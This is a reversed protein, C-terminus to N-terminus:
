GASTIDKTRWGVAASSRTEIRSRSIHGGHDMRRLTSASGIGCMHMIERRRLIAATIM